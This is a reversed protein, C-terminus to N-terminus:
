GLGRVHEVMSWAVVTLLLGVVKILLTPGSLVRGDTTRLEGFASVALGFVGVLELALALWEATM